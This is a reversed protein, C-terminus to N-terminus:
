RALLAEHGRTQERVCCHPFLAVPGVVFANSSSRREATTASPLVRAKLFIYHLAHPTAQRKVENM